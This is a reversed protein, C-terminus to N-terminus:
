KKEDLEIDAIHKPHRKSIPLTEIWKEGDWKKLANEGYWKKMVAEVNNYSYYQRGEFEYLRFPYVDEKPFIPERMIKEWPIAITQSAYKSDKNKRGYKEAKRLIIKKLWLAKFGLNDLLVMPIMLARIPLRKLEDWIKNNAVNDYIVIDIFIGDGDCKNRLLTNVEKVYTGKKRIKMSPILVNYRDDTEFCHFYFKDSLDRKLADIFRLWDERKICVDIDDDWPIFGKYNCIGLASGAILAYDIKNKVCIRHLEDMIELLEMQLRRVTIKKGSSTKLYYINDDIIYDKKM